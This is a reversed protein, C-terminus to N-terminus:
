YFYMCHSSLHDDLTKACDHATTLLASTTSQATLVTNADLKDAKSTNNLLQFMCASTQFQHISFIWLCFAHRFDLPVTRPSQAYMESLGNM